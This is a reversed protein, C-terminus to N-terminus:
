CIRASFQCNRTKWYSNKLYKSITKKWPLKTVPLTTMAWCICPMILIDCMLIDLCFVPETVQKLELLDCYWYKFKPLCAQSRCNTIKMCYQDKTKKCLKSKKEVFISGLAPISPLTWCCSMRTPHWTTCCLDCWAFPRGHSTHPPSYASARQTLIFLLLPFLFGQCKRLTTPTSLFYLMCMSNSVQPM